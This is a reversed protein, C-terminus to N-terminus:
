LDDPDKVQPNRVRNTVWNMAQTLPYDEGKWAALVASISPQLTAVLDPYTAAVQPGLITATGAVVTGVAAARADGAIKKGLSEGQAEAVAEAVIVKILNEFSESEIAIARAATEGTGAAERHLDELDVTIRAELLAVQEALAALAFDLKDSAEEAQHRAANDARLTDFRTLDPHLGVLVNHTSVIGDLTDRLDVGLPPMDEFGDLSRAANSALKTRLDNGYKWVLPASMSDPGDALADLYRALLEALPGYMQNRGTGCEACLKGAAERLLGHFMEMEDDPPVDPPTRDYGVQGADGIRYRLGEDSQPPIDDLDPPPEWTELYAFLTKARTADDEIESIERIRDDLRTAACDRFTLSLDSPTNALRHLGSLPRLDKAGSRDLDLMTLGTLGALPAIDSVDTSNLFLTTLGTLGALPTLNSVGTNYLYLQTLGTLGALPAIDSVDTSNLSLTTLGTLGALPALDSVGTNYLSLEVLGTLGALSAIDSVDTNGLDLTTLSTLGALPAIDSVGTNTLYLEVLGTLGALPAIDSVGTNNLDLETLGTLGVLPAIDSVDTSNLSLTTLGTLGALPALDSVDTSNLFLTTLGTLGAIPAIDSVGTNNLYLTTLGTLGALPAIDSVGTGNLSLYTLGTLGALPTLDSVDTSNLSLTTLSTLGALPTLDSVGTNSLDLAKLGGLAGIEDPLQTLARTADQDFGLGEAGHRKAEAIMERAAEFAKDAETM